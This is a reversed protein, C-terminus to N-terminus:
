RPRRGGGSRPRKANLYIRYASEGVCSEAEKCWDLCCSGMDRSLDKACGTCRITVEDTWIENRTGCFQCVIEEPLPERFFAAGPCASKM